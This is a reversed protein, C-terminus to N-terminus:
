MNGSSDFICIKNEETGLPFKRGTQLNLFFPKSGRFGGTFHRNKLKAKASQRSVGQIINTNQVTGSVLPVM